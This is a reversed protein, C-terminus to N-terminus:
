RVGKVKMALTYVSKSATIFLISQNPGGFCVNATWSEDIDIQEIKIGNKDFVSVGKGTLYINGKNDITMGDSGQSTFLKRKVLSGDSNIQYKYIKRDGIDAIYLEKGNSSGVIGNPKVLDDAVVSVKKGDASVYYIREPRTEDAQYNWYKRIYLPDTFYIGGKRDVWLDNPGNLRMGEYGDVIVEHGKQQDFRWIQNNLDACALLNGDNDFYLGNSRGAEELFVSVGIGSTWKLIRNNPQDTFYVNGEPDVAPGETFKYDSAILQLEAGKVIIKSNQAKGSLVLSILVTLTTCKMVLGIM